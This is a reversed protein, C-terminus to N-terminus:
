KKKIALQKAAKRIAAREAAICNTADIRQQEKRASEAAIEGMLKKLEGLVFDQASTNCMKLHKEFAGPYQFAKEGIDGGFRITVMGNKMSIVQGLGFTLHVVQENTLNM